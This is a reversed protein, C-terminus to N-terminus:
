TNKINDLKELLRRILELFEQDKRWRGAYLNLFKLTNKIEKPDPNPTELLRYADKKYKNKTKIDARRLLLIAAVLALIILAFCFYDMIEGSSLAPKIQLSM